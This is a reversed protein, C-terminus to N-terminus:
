PPPISKRIGDLLERTGHVACWRRVYDWDLRDGQVSVVGLADERDKPRGLAHFWRLKVVVVDEPTPLYTRRGLLDTERRRAFRERDFEDEGLEFLEISFAPASPGCCHIVHRTTGTASEFSAQPDLRYRPGLRRAIRAVEGARAAVVFDADQTSRPIGYASSSFAGVLMHPIELENLADIVGAVAEETTM